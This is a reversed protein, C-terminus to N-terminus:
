VDAETAPVVFPARYERTLMADAKDSATFKEQAPDFQLNDGVRFQHKEDLEVHNDHLHAIVRDLTEQVKEHTKLTKLREATEGASHLSGLRYSINSTHCMASSLHGKLVQANLKADSGARVADLFNGFHDGGGSFSKVLTGKLDFVSASGYNDPCALFGNTGYFIVGVHIDMLAPTELGRVEFTLTKGNPLEHIAVQTNATDGADEYGFRGGYSIVSSSMSDAGLGWRAIDMQHIGQNGIDGNGYDWQWHWDYHLHPRTLPKLPAPGSWLNYDVEAPIPYNGRPGISTRRKYCLARALNVEGLEGSQMYAMAKQLATASRSQTGAQCVRGHKKAAQVLRRGESVNHSVPKEVYVDKGAQIAWIAALSHWHNPTAVSVFDLSKDDFLKRLDQVYQPKRGTKKEIEACKNNGVKTDIDCIYALDVHHGLWEKVHEGGRGNVGIVAGVLRENASKSQSTTEALARGASMAGSSAAVAAATALMSDELFRRRNLKGM